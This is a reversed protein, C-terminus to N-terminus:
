KDGVYIVYLSDHSGNWTPIDHREVVRGITRYENPCPFIHYDEERWCESCQVGLGLLKHLKPTGTCGMHEGIYIVWEGGAKVYAEVAETTHESNPVPWCMMLACEPFTEAATVSDCQDVYTYTQKHWWTNKTRDPPYLDTAFIEGGADEVLKAWYGTGCGIEVVPGMSVITQIAEENPIAWSWQLAEQRVDAVDMRNAGNTDLWHDMLPNWM